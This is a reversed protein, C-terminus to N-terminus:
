VITDRHWIVCIAPPGQLCRVLVATSPSEQSCVYVRLMHLSEFSGVVIKLSPSLCCPSRSRDFLVGQRTAHLLGHRSAQFGDADGSGKSNSWDGGRQRIQARSGIDFPPRRGSFVCCASLATFGRYKTASRCLCDVIEVPGPLSCLSVQHRTNSCSCITQSFISLVIRAAPKRLSGRSLEAVM